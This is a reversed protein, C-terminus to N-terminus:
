KLMEMQLTVLLERVTEAETSTRDQDIKLTRTYEVAKGMVSDFSGKIKAYAAPTIKSRTSRLTQISAAVKRLDNVAEDQFSEILEERLSELDVWPILTMSNRAGDRQVLRGTFEALRELEDGRNRHVFYVGDKLRLGNLYIVYNRIIGRVKDQDWYNRGEQYLEDVRQLVGELLPREEASVVGPELSYRVRETGYQVKGNTTVPRYFVCEGVKEYALRQQRTDKIERTLQRSLVEPTSKLDRVLVEATNGNAFRYDTGDVASTASKFANIPNNPEPIFKSNLDLEDFWKELTPGDYLGDRVTFYVLQGLITDPPLEGAKDMYKRFDSKAATM